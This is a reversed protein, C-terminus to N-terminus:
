HGALLDGEPMTPGRYQSCKQVVFGASCDTKAVWKNRYAELFALLSLRHRRRALREAIKKRVTALPRVGGPVVKRVVVLVWANNFRAPGAIQGPVATFITHLLSGNERRAGEFQSPRAVREHLSIRAFRRGPGLRRGIAIAAARTRRIGEILDTVRIERFRFQARNRRYYSAISADSVPRARHALMARLQAAASEAGIELEIDAITRGTSSMEQEFEAKGNPVSEIRERLRREITANSTALGRDAAEGKLWSVTILFALARERPTGRLQQLSGVAADGLDIARAWHDVTQETISADGVRVAVPSPSDGDCGAVGVIFALSLAVFLWRM